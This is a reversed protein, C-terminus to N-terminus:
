KELGGRQNISTNWYFGESRYKCDVRVHLEGSLYCTEETTLEINKILIIGKSYDFTINAHRKGLKSLLIPLKAKIESLSLKDNQRQDSCRKRLEAPCCNFNKCSETGWFGYREAQNLVYALACSNVEFLPYKYKQAMQRLIQKSGKPWVCESNLTEPDNIIEPWFSLKDQFAEEVKLGAVVSCMAYKSAFSIIREISNISSNQPVIPRFYHIIKIERSKLRKFNEKIVDSSIGGEIAKDLGSYSLYVIIQQGLQTLKWIKDIIFDPIHCKTIFVLPNPIPAAALIDLLRSVYNINERTSFIDTQSFFCIPVDEVYYTSSKVTEMIEEVPLLVQPKTKTGDVSQLFCYKCNNPCGQIPNAVLWAAHRNIIPYFRM